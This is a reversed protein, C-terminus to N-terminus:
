QGPRCAAQHLLLEQSLSLVAVHTFLVVLVETGAHARLGDLLQERLQIKVLEGLLQGCLQTLSGALLAQTDDLAQLDNLRETQGCLRGSHIIM